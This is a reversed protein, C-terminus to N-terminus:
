YSERDKKGRRPYISRNETDCRPHPTMTEGWISKYKDDPPTKKGTKTEMIPWIKYELQALFIPRYNKRGRIDGKNKYIHVVTGQTWEPPLQDGNQIKQLITTLPTEIWDKLEKYVEGTTGDIGHSKNTKLHRIANRIDVQTYQKTAM